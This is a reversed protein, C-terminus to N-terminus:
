LSPIFRASREWLQARDVERMDLWHQELTDLRGSAHAGRLVELGAAQQARLMARGKEIEPHADRRLTDM